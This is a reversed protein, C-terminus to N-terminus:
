TTNFLQSRNLALSGVLGLNSVLVLLNYVIHTLKIHNLIDAYTGQILQGQYETNLFTFSGDKKWAM